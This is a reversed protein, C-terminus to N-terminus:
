VAMLMKMKPLQLWFGTLEQRNGQVGLCEWVGAEQLVCVGGLLHMTRTLQMHLSPHASHNSSEGVLTGGDVAENGGTGSCWGLLVSLCVVPM